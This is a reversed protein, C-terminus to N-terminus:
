TVTGHIDIIVIYTRGLIVFQQFGLERYYLLIDIRKQPPSENSPCGLTAM